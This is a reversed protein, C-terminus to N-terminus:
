SAAEQLEEGALAVYAGLAPDTRKREWTRRLETVGLGDPNCYPCRVWPGSDNPDPRAPFLGATIGDLITSLAGIVEDLAQDTVTYGVRRLRNLESIFWYEAVLRSDQDGFSDRAALAYLALQLRTGGGHPNAESLGLYSDPRGTKYDVVHVAGDDAVDVRDIYGHVELPGHGPVDIRTPGADTEEFGFSLETAVPRSAAEQRFRHDDDLFRVLTAITRARDRSWFVQRGVVGRAEYRACAQEAIKAMLERHHQGWPEGPQPQDHSPRQLIETFFEDLVEHILAGREMPPIRLQTTPDEIPEVGLVQHVFYAYPCNAWTELRTPSVPVRLEPKPDTASLNGDFRTFASSARSRLLTAGAAVIPDTGIVRETGAQLRHEQETAPRLAHAVGHAFSPAEDLEAKGQQLLEDLWRSRSRESSARLDGRPATLVHRRAGALAAHLQRRQRQPHDARLPLEGGAQQRDYDSLLTDEQLRAPLLGEAGGLVVALDLDLGIAYSLPALLVGEGFRGSRGLDADLELALTRRFADFTCAPELEDLAAIRDLASDVREAARVEAAPWGQVTGAKLVQHGLQRLWRVRQAWAIPEGGTAEVLADITSLVLRRLEGAQESLWTADKLELRSALHQLKRDWDARGAVVGAERSLREWVTISHSRSGDPAPTATLLNMVDARHFDRDPLALLRTYVRGLASQDLAAPAAGNTPIGAATFQEQALRAYPEQAPYLVAMRELPVRQHAADVVSRVAVRVEEDADSTSIIRTTSPATPWARDTRLGTPRPSAGLRQLTALVARDAEPSGTLAAVVTAPVHAALLGLFEAAGAPMEQPLHVILSGIEATSTRPLAAKAAATLGVETYWRHELREAVAWWLQVVEASRRSARAVREVAAPSLQGLEMCAAILAEETAPHHAVPQFIGAREELAARVAVAMAARSVPRQGRAALTPAGLLEALRGVTVFRAGIVGSTEATSGARHKALMRRATVGAHNTPVVVTVPTLPEGAKAERVVRELAALAAPGHETTVLSFTM